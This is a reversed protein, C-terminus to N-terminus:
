PSVGIQESLSYIGFITGRKDSGCIVLAKACENWPADVLATCWTEWKGEIVTTDIKGDSALRRIFSSRQVSGIIVACPSANQESGVNPEVEGTVAVIDKALTAAAIHIGEFDKHDVVIPANVLSVGGVAAEYAVFNNQHMNYCVVAAFVKSFPSLDSAGHFYVSILSERIHSFPLAIM